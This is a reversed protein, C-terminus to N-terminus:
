KATAEVPFKTEKERRSLNVELFHGCVSANEHKSGEFKKPM